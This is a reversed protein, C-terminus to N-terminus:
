RGVILPDGEKLLGDFYAITRTLGDRLQIKPQWGLEKRALSIDLPSRLRHPAVEAANPHSGIEFELNPLAKQIARQLDESVYAKDLGINYAKSLPGATFLARSIGGHRKLTLYPNNRGFAASERRPKNM